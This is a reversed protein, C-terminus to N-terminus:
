MHFYKVDNKQKIHTEIYTHAKMIMQLESLDHSLQNQFHNQIDFDFDHNQNQNEFDDFHFSKSKSKLIVM